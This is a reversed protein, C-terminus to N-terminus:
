KGACDPGYGGNVRANARSEEDTLSRGCKCCRDLEAVFLMRSEALGAEVIRHLIAIGAKGYQMFLADSARVQVNKYGKNTSVRYFKVVDGVRIAYNGDPIASFDLRDRAPEVPTVPTEVVPAATRQVRPTSPALLFDIMKRTLRWDAKAAVVDEETYSHVRETLLKDILIVQKPSAGNVTTDPRAAYTREGGYGVTHREDSGADRYTQAGNITRPRVMETDPLSRVYADIKADTIGHAALQADVDASYKLWPIQRPTKTTTTM